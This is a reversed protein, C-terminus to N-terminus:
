VVEKGVLEAFRHHGYQGRTLTLIKELPFFEADQDLENEHIFRRCGEQCAGTLLRYDLVSVKGEKRVKAAIEAVDAESQLFKFNLDSLAERATAGHAFYEGRQAVYCGDLKEIDGGGFYKAKYLTLDGKARKSVVLMTVGDACLFEHTKGGYKHKGTLSDLCVHGHNEFKVGEPLTTLSPLLVPGHNEFKVGEPLTKLSRLSVFGNNEFKVGEPLTTLSRLIVGGNNEFKVGEPLTELSPLDVLTELTSFIVHCKGTVVLVGDREEFSYGESDLLEKFKSRNM